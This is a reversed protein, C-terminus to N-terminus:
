TGDPPQLLRQIADLKENVEPDISIPDQREIMRYFDTKRLLLPSGTADAVLQFFKEALLSLKKTQTKARWITRQTSTNAQRYNHFDEEDQDFVQELLLQDLIAARRDAFLDTVSPQAWEILLEPTVVYNELEYRRWPLRTLEGESCKLNRNDDDIIELGRLKPVLQRLAFFHDRATKGFAGEVRDLLEDPDHSSVPHNDQLYYVNVHSGDGLVDRVPHDLRDAFARLMALDTRGELYLVHGTERARVYHAAGFSKLSEKIAKKSALDEAQGGLILTLNADLATQMVVESHTAMLVQCRKRDAIALLLEHIQQQRLIELHADPEDIM